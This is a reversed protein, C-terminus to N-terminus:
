HRNPLEVSAQIIKTVENAMYKMKQNLKAYVQDPQDRPTTNLVAEVSIVAMIWFTSNLFEEPDTNAARNVEMSICWPKLLKEMMSLDLADIGQEKAEKIRQSIDAEIAKVLRKTTTMPTM